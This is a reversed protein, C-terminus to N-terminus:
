DRIDHLHRNKLVRKEEEISKIQSQARVITIVLVLRLLSVQGVPYKEDKKSKPWISAHTCISMKVRGGFWMRRGREVNQTGHHDDIVCLKVKQLRNASFRCLVEADRPSVLKGEGAM